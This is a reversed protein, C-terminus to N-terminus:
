ATSILILKVPDENFLATTAEIAQWTDPLDRVGPAALTSM